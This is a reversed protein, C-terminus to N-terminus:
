YGLILNGGTLEAETRTFFFEIYQPGKATLTLLGRMSEVREGTEGRLEFWFERTGAAM